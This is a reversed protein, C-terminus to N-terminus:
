SGFRLDNLLWGQTGANANIVVTVTVDADNGNLIPMVPAPVTFTPRFFTQVPLGTREVQGIYANEATTNSAAAAIGAGLGALTTNAAAAASALKKVASEAASAVAGSAPDGTGAASSLKAISQANSNPTM